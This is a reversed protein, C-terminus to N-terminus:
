LPSHPRSRDLPQLVHCLRSLLVISDWLFSGQLREYRRTKTGMALEKACGYAGRHLWVSADVAARKGAFEKIHVTQTISALCPLLGSIGM